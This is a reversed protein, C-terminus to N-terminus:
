NSLYVMRSQYSEADPHAFNESGTLPKWFFVSTNCPNRFTRLAFVRGCRTWARLPFPLRQHSYRACVDESRSENACCWRCKTEGKSWRIAELKSDQHMSTLRLSKQSDREEPQGLYSTKPSDPLHAPQGPRRGLPWSLHLPPSCALLITVFRRELKRM